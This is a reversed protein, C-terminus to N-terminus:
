RAPRHEQEQKTLLKVVGELQANIARLPETKTEPPLTQGPASGQEVTSLSMNESQGEPQESNINNNQLLKLLKDNLAEAQSIRSFLARRPQSSDGEHSMDKTDEGM